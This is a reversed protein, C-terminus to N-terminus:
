HNRVCDGSSDGFERFIPYGLEQWFLCRPRSDCPNHTSFMFWGKIPFIELPTGAQDQGNHPALGSSVSATDLQLPHRQSAPRHSMQCLDVAQSWLRFGAPLHHCDERYERYPYDSPTLWRFPCSPILYAATAGAAREEESPTCARRCPSPVEYELMRTGKFCLRSDPNHEVLATIGKGCGALWGM